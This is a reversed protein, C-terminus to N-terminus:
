RCTRRACAPRTSPRSSRSTLSNRSTSRAAKASLRRVWPRSSPTSTTSNRDQAAEHGGARGAIERRATRRRAVGGRDLQDFAGGEYVAPQRHEDNDGAPQPDGRSLKRRLDGRTAAAPRSHSPRDSIGERREDTPAPQFAEAASLRSYIVGSRISSRSSSACQQPLDQLGELQEEISKRLKEASEFNLLIEEYRLEYDRSLAAIHKTQEDYNIM